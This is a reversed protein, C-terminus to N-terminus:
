RGDGKADLIQDLHHQIHVVYDRMLFDLTPTADAPLPQFAVGTLNHRLRPRDLEGTTAQRMIEAVQHNYACWVRILEAWSRDQYRQVRVWGDQDYGEFVFDGDLQARVFRSQNNAASDILHGLIEKRSWKDAAPRAAAQGDSISLMRSASDDVTQLLATVFDPDMM